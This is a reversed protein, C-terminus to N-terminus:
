AGEEGGVMLRREEERSCNFGGMTHAAEGFFFFSVFSVIFSFFPGKHLTRKPSVEKAFPRPVIPFCNCKHVREYGIRVREYITQITRLNYIARVDQHGRETRLQKSRETLACQGGGM